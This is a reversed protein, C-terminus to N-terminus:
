AQAEEALVRLGAVVRQQFALYSILQSLTVIGDISWGAEILADLDSAASERPRFVLLHTHELAAALRDGLAARAADARYIPGSTNEAQLGAETYAGYPGSAAAAAAEALI